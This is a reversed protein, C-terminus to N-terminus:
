RRCIECDERRERNIVISESVLSFNFFNWPMKWGLINCITAYVTIGIVATHIYIVAPYRCKNKKSENERPYICNFCPGDKEQVFVYGLRMDESVASFLVPKDTKLGFDSVDYRTKDNDVLCVLIDAKRYDNRIDQFDLPVAKIRTSFTCERLLNKQLALAKNMGIQDNYFLQRSLNSPEIFDSDCIIMEGIGLRALNKVYLGGLGGAGIIGIRAGAIKKQNWGNLREQRDFVEPQKIGRARIIKKKRSSFPLGM